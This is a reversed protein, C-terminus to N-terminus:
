WDLFPRLAPEKQFELLNKEELAKDDATLQGSDYANKIRALLFLREHSLHKINENFFYKQLDAKIKKDKGEHTIIDQCLSLFGKICREYDQEDLNDLFIRITQRLASIKFQIHRMQHGKKHHHIMAEKSETTGEVLYKASALNLSYEDEILSNTEALEIKADKETYAIRWTDETESRINKLHKQNAYEQLIYRNSSKM